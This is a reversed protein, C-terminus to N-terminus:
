LQHLLSVWTKMLLRKIKEGVVFEKAMVTGVVTKKGMNGAVMIGEKTLDSKPNVDLILDGVGKTKGEGLVSKKGGNDEAMKNRNSENSKSGVDLIM